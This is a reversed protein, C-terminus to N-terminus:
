YNQLYVASYIEQFPSDCIYKLDLSLQWCNEAIEEAEASPEDVTVQERQLAKITM